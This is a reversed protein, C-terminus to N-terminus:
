GRNGWRTHKMFRRTLARHIEIIEKQTLTFVSERRDHNGSIITVVASRYVDVTYSGDIYEERLTKLDTKFDEHINELTTIQDDTMGLANYMAKKIEEPDSAFRGWGRRGRRWRRDEDDRNELLIAKQDDTLLIEMEVRFWEMIGMLEFRFVILEINGNNIQDILSEIATRKYEILADYAELQDDNLISRLYLDMRQFRELRKFHYDNEESLITLDFDSPPALLLLKQELTLNEHLYAALKWLAAPDPHFDKGRGLSARASSRQESDFDLESDLEQILYEFEPPTAEENNGFRACGQALFLIIFPLIILKKM